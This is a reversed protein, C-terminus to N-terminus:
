AAGKLGIFLGPGSRREGYENRERQLSIVKGHAKWEADKEPTGTMFADDVLPAGTGQGCMGVVVRGLVIGSRRRGKTSLVEVGRM